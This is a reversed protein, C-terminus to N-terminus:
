IEQILSLAPAIDNLWPYDTLLRLPLRMLM